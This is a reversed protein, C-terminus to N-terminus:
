AAEEARRKYEPDPEPIVVSIEAGQARVREVFNWFEAWSVVDRKGEENTTTTRIPISRAHGFIERESWGFFEGCFHTHLDDKTHGTADSLLPYAVGFLYANQELSRARKREKIDVSYLRDPRLAHITRIIRALAEGRPRSKPLLFSQM